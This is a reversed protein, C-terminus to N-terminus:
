AARKDRTSLSGSRRDYPTAARGAGPPHEPRSYITQAPAIYVQDYLNALQLWRMRNNNRTLERSRKQQGLDPRQTVIATPTSAQPPRGPGLNDPHNAHIRGAGDSPSGATSTTARAAGVLSPKPDGPLRAPHV